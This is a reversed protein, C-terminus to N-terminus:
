KSLDNGRILRITALFPSGSTIWLSVGTFKGWVIDNAGLDIDCPLIKKAIKQATIRDSPIDYKWEYPWRTYTTEKEYKGYNARQKYGM